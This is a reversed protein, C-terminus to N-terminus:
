ELSKLRGDLHPESIDDSINHVSPVTTHKHATSFRCICGGRTAITYVYLRIFQIFLYALKTLM